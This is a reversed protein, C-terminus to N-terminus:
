GNILIDRIVKKCDQLAQNYIERKARLDKHCNDVDKEHPLLKLIKEALTAKYNSRKEIKESHTERSNDM